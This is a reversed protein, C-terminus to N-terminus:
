FEHEGKSLKINIRHHTNEDLETYKSDWANIVEKGDIFLKAYDDATIGISYEKEELMMKTVAVTAFSDAPLDKGIATGV